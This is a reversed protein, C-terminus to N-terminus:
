AAPRINRSSIPRWSSPKFPTCRRARSFPIASIRVGIPMARVGISSPLREAGVLEFLDVRFLLLAM